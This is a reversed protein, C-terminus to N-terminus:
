DVALSSQASHVQTREDTHVKIQSRGDLYGNDRQCPRLDFLGSNAGITSDQVLMELISEPRDLPNDMVQRIVREFSLSEPWSVTQCNPGWPLMGQRRGSPRFEPMTLLPLRLVSACLMLRASWAVCDRPPAVVLHEFAPWDDMSSIARCRRVRDPGLEVEMVSTEVVVAAAAAALQAAAARRRQLRRRRAATVRVEATNPSRRSEESDSEM